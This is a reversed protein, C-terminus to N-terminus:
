KSGNAKGVLVAVRERFIENARNEIWKVTFDSEEDDSIARWDRLAQKLCSAMYVASAMPCVNAKACFQEPETLKIPITKSM